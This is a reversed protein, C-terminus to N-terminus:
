IEIILYFRFLLFLSFSIYICLLFIYIFNKQALLGKIDDYIIYLINDIIYLIM